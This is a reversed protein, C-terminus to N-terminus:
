ACAVKRGRGISQVVRSYYHSLYRITLYTKFNGAQKRQHPLYYIYSCAGKFFFAKINLPYTM